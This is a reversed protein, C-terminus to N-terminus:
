RSQEKMEDLIDVVDQPAMSWGGTAQRGDHIWMWSAEQDRLMKATGRFIKYGYVRYAEGVAYVMQRWTEGPLGRKIHGKDIVSPREREKAAGARSSPNWTGAEMM